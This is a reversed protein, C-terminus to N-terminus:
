RSTVVANNQLDSASTFKAASLMLGIAVCFFDGLGIGYITCTFSSAVVLVLLISLLVRASNPSLRRSAYAMAALSACLLALGILGGEAAWLLFLNHPNDVTETGPLMAAAKIRRYEHNWSGSGFGILPEEHVATVSASWFTLRQGSSTNKNSSDKFTRLENSVEKIRTAVKDSGVYALTSLVFPLLVTWLRFKKPIEVFAAYTLFAACMLFGTRSILSGYIHVVALLAFAIALPKYKKGFISDRMFWLVAALVTETMSQELYSGFVAYHTSASSATAWPLSVGLWLLCSSLLVFLQGAVLVRLVWLFEGRSQILIVVIPITLLRAHRAWSQGATVISASSWAMSFAMFGVSLLVFWMWAEQKWFPMHVASKLRSLIFVLATVYLVLRGIASVATGLSPSLAAFYIAFLRFSMKPQSDAGAAFASAVPYTSVM